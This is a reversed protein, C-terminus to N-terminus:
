KKVSFAYVCEQTYTEGPRLVASPFEPRNPADPFNQAELAVGQRFGYMEGRKGPGKSDPINHTYLQMGPRDTLVEMVIGTAPEWLTAAHVLAEPASQDLAFTHDYGNPGRVAEHEADIRAGIPTPSRFDLPTGEVPLIEGTPILTSDLSLYGDADIMLVHSAISQAATGHLNFFPHSTPNIVTPADTTARYHIALGNDATIRYTVTIDVCGPYGEEGDASRYSMALYRGLSDTGEAADWVRNRWGDAGGHLHNPANNIPLTYEQGDLTFRGQRIRGGYRGVISGVSANAPALYDGINPFGWVVDRFVGQRDPVWLAVIRAGYNTFQATMGQENRLTYLSVQRGRLVTDFAAAPLLEVATAPQKKGCGATLVVACFISLIVSARQM